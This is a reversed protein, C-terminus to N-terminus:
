AVARVDRLIRRFVKMEHLATALADLDPPDWASPDGVLALRADIRAQLDKAFGALASKDTAEEVAESLEMSEMLFAPALTKNRELAEADILGLLYEARQSLSTLVVYAENLLASNAVVLQRTADDAAGHFDPHLLRSLRLFRTELDSTDAIGRPQGLRSFCDGEPSEVLPRECSLCALSSPTEGGCHPCATM